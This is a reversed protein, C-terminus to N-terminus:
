KRTPTRTRRQLLPTMNPVDSHLKSGTWGDFRRADGSARRGSGAAAKSRTGSGPCGECGSPWKRSGGTVHGWVASTRGARTRAADRADLVLAAFAGAHLVGASNVLTTIGGLEKEAAAVVHACAGPETLDAAEYSCGIEAALEKLAVANRGTALVSAGEKAFRRAIAQGIGSSAGTVVALKGALAM